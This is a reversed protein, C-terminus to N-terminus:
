GDGSSRLWHMPKTEPRAERPLAADAVEAYARAKEAPKHAEVVAAFDEGPERRSRCWWSLEPRDTTM